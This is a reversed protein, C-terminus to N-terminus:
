EIEKNVQVKDIALEEVIVSIKFWIDDHKFM